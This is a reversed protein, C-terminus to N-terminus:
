SCVLGSTLFDSKRMDLFSWELPDTTETAVCLLTKEYRPEYLQNVKTM